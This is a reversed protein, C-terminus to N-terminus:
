EYVARLGQLYRESRTVGKDVIADPNEGLLKISETAYARKADENMRQWDSADVIGDGTLDFKQDVLLGGAAHASAALFLLSVAFVPRVVRIAMERAM